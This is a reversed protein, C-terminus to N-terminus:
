SLINIIIYYYIYYKIYKTICAIMHHDYWPASNEIQSKVSKIDESEIHM